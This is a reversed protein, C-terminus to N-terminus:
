HTYKINNKKRKYFLLNYKYIKISWKFINNHIYIACLKQMLTEM